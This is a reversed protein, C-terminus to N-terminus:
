IKNFINKLEYELTEHERKSNNKGTIEIYKTIKERLCRDKEYRKEFRKLIEFYSNDHIHNNFGLKVFLNKHDESHYLKGTKKNYNSPYWNYDDRGKGLFGEGKIIKNNEKIVNYFSSFNDSIKNIKAKICNLM